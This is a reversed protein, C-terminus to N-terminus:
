WFTLFWGFQTLCHMCILKLILSFCFQIINCIWFDFFQALVVFFKVEPFFWHYRNTYKCFINLTFYEKNKYIMFQFWGWKKSISSEINNSFFTRYVLTCFMKFTSVTIQVKFARMLLCLICAQFKFKRATFEPPFSIFNIIHQFQIKLFCPLFSHM